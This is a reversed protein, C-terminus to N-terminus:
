LKLQITLPIELTNINISGGGAVDCGTMLYFFGPLFYFHGSIGIDAFGGAALGPKLTTASYNLGNSAFILNSMNVGLEPSFALQAPSALSSGMVALVLLYEKM